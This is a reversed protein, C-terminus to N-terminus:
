VNLAKLDTVLVEAITVQLNTYVGVPARGNYQVELPSCVREGVYWYWHPNFGSFIMDDRYSFGHVSWMRPKRSGRKPRYGPRFGPSADVIHRRIRQLIDLQIGPRPVLLRARLEIWKQISTSHLVSAVTMSIM